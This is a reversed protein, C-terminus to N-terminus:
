FASDTLWDSFEPDNFQGPVYEPYCYPNMPSLIAQTPIEDSKLGDMPPLHPQPKVDFLGIFVDDPSSREHGHYDGATGLFDDALAFPVPSLPDHSSLSGSMSSPSHSAFPDIFQIDQCDFAPEGLSFEPIESTPVFGDVNADPTPPPTAGIPAPSVSPQKPSASHHVGLLTPSGDQEYKVQTKSHRPQRPRPPASPKKPASRRRAKKRRPGEVYESEASSYGDDGEADRKELEKKLDDGLYGRQMLRAVKQCRHVKDSHDLKPKRKAGGDKRYVPTYKYDPHALAHLRKAEEAKVQYPIREGASLNNWLEGAIRSIQRHDREVTKKIKESAWLESRFIMFANPPRPVYDPDRKRSHSSRQGTYLYPKSPTLLPSEPDVEPEGADDASALTGPATAAPSSPPLSSSEPYM